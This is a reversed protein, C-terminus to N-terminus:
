FWFCQSFEWVRQKAPLHLTIRNLESLGNIHLLWWLLYQFDFNISKFRILLFVMPLRHIGEQHAPSRMMWTRVEQMDPQCGCNQLCPFVLTNEPILAHFWLLSVTGEDEMTWPWIELTCRIEVTERLGYCQALPCHRPTMRTQPESGRHM